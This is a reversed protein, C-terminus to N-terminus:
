QVDEDEILKVIAKHFASRNASQGKKRGSADAWNSNTAIVLNLRPVIYIGQGFIGRADFAGNGHIWWQYGYGVDRNPVDFRAQTAQAIWGEPVIPEGDVKAGDLMFQGIRAFDRTSAQICCGSIEEGQADLLWSADAEMGYPGWIKEAAYDALQKGTASRVLLGIMNTEGTSYNWVTGAPHARPLARMYSVIPNIDGEAKHLGFKAVDSNPDSYDENWKVGSSMTLLQEITVGDYASGKLGTIYDAVNADLSKIYGDKIAAGVLTSTVSKAVSFSTWRGKDTFGLGYKEFRIKGNQIIVLGSVQNKEMYADIDVSIHDGQPLPKGAPLPRVTETAKIERAKVLFSVQDLMRFGAERQADSWFLVDKGSPPNMILARWDPGMAWASIFGVAALGLATKILKGAM